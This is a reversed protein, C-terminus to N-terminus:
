DGLSFRIGDERISGDENFMILLPFKHDGNFDYYCNLYAGSDVPVITTQYYKYNGILKEIEAYDLNKGNM